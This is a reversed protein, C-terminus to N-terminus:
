HKRKKKAKAKIIERKVEDLNALRGPVPVPYSDGAPIDPRGVYLFDPNNLQPIEDDNKYGVGTPPPVYQVPTSGAAADSPADTKPQNFAFIGAFIGACLSVFATATRSARRKLAQWGVPCDGTLVSGDQRRYFRVCVRNESALLLNEAEDRTMGSLNYVNLSCARCFRRREDGPMEDWNAACPSAIRMNDLPNTFRKM